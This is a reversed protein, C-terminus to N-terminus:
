DSGSSPPKWNVFFRRAWGARQYIWLQGFSEKLLRATNLRKNATLLTESGKQRGTQPERPALAPALEKVAHWDLHLERAVDQVVASRCCRGVYYAFRKTYLPDAALFDLREQKVKGCSRYHVRRVEIELYVSTDACSLERVRRTSRDYWGSHVLGCTTKKSCRVMTIVRTKTDGFIGRVKAQPRFCPFRYADLLRKFKSSTPM